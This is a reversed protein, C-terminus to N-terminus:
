GILALWVDLGFEKILAFVAGAQRLGIAEFKVYFTDFNIEDLDCTLFSWIM